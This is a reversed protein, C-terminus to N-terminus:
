EVLFYNSIFICDAGLAFNIKAVCSIGIAQLQFVCLLMAVRLLLRYVKKAEFMEELNVLAATFEEDFGMEIIKLLDAEQKVTIEIQVITGNGDPVFRTNWNM